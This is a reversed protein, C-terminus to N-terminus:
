KGGDLQTIVTGAADGLYQTLWQTVQAKSLGGDVRIWDGSDDKRAMRAKVKVPLQSTPLPKLWYEDEVAEQVEKTGIKVRSISYKPQYYEDVMKGDKPDKVQRGTKSRQRTVRYVLEDGYWLLLQIIRAFGTKDVLDVVSGTGKPQDPNPVVGEFKVKIVKIESRWIRTGQYVPTVPPEVKVTLPNYLGKMEVKVNRVKVKAPKPKKVKFKNLKETRSVEASKRVPPGKSGGTTWKFDGAKIVPKPRKKGM